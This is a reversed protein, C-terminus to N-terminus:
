QQTTVDSISRSRSGLKRKKKEIGEAEVTENTKILKFDHNLIIVNLIIINQCPFIERM